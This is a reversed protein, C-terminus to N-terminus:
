KPLLKQIDSASIRMPHDIKAIKGQPDIVVIHPIGQVDYADSTTSGKDIAVISKLPKKAIFKKLTAEDESSISIFEVPKGKFQEVLENMHPISAVCPGCWTAWFDLVVAKGKLQSLTLKSADPGGITKSITLEPPKEGVKPGKAGAVAFVGLAIALGFSIFVRLKM